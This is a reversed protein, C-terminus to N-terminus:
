LGKVVTEGALPATTKTPWHWTGPTATGNLELLGQDCAVYKAFQVGEPNFVILHVVGATLDVVETIKASRSKAPYQQQGDQPASGLSTYYVDRGVSAIDTM